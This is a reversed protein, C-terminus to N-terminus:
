EHNRIKEVIATNLVGMALMDSSCFVADIDPHAALLERLGSRGHGVTTPAGVYCAPVQGDPGALKM